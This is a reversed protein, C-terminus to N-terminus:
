LQYPPTWLTGAEQGNVKVTAINYVSDFQIFVKENGGNGNFTFSQKYVATGSYYRISSDAHQSWSKLENMVVPEAPGGYNPDFSVAWSDNVDYKKSVPTGWSVNKRGPAEGKQRLVLFISQNAEFHLRIYTRGNLSKWESIKTIEGTVPDWSEPIMGKVPLPFSITNIENKQNAIFYIDAGPLKRHHWAVSNDNNEIDFDKPINLKNFSSDVYPLM